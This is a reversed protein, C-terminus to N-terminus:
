LFSSAEHWHMRPGLCWKPGWRATRRWERVDTRGSITLLQLQPQALM